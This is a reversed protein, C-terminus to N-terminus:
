TCTTDLAKKQIIGTSSIIIKACKGTGNSFIITADAVLSTNGPTPKFQITTSNPIITTGNPLSYAYIQTKNVGLNCSIQFSYGGTTITVIYGDFINTGQTCISDYGQVDRATAKKKVLELTQLLKNAETDLRSAKSFNNYYGLSLGSFISIVMVVILLELFTFGYKYRKTLRGM